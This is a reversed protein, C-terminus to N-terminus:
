PLEFSARIMVAGIAGLPSIYFSSRPNGNEAAQAFICFTTHLCLAMGAGFLFYKVPNM